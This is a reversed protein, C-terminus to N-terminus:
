RAELRKQISMGGPLAVIGLTTYVKWTALINKLAICACTAIAAGTIDIWAILIWNTVLSAMTTIALIQRMASEHGTMILIVSSSGFVLTLFQGISLIGLILGAEAFEAGFVSLVLEPVLLTAIVPPLAVCCMITSSRTALRHLSVLDGNRYLVSFRQAVISNFALWIFGILSATRFAASFLGVSLPTSLLGLCIASFWATLFGMVSVLMLPWASNLLKRPSAFEQQTQVGIKRSASLAAYALTLCTALVYFGAADVASIARDLAACALLLLFFVLPILTSEVLVGQAPHKIAKFIGSLVIITGYPAIALAMVEMVGAFSSGGSLTSSLMPISFLMLLYMLAGSVISLGVGQLSIGWV